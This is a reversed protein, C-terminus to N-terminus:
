FKRTAGIRLVRPGPGDFSPLDLQGNALIPTVGGNYGNAQITYPFSHINTLNTVSVILQTRPALPIGASADIEVFAPQYYQNNNGYYNADFRLFDSRTDRWGIGANGVSYPISVNLADGQVGTWNHGSIIGLNTSLPMGPQNYFGPPLDYPAARMLAASASWFFGRQPNHALSLEVGEYRAHGLNENEATYLPLGNDAGTLTTATFFQNIINTTYIDFSTVIGANRLRYDLGGDYGFATEPRLNANTLYQEYYTPSTVSNASPSTSTGVMTTLVPPAISAGASFRASLDSQPRWTIGLRPADYSSWHDAFTVNGDTSVHADYRNLYLSAVAQVKPALAFSARALASEIVQFNGAYQNPYVFDPLSAQGEAFQFLPAYQTKDVALTYLSSGIPLDAQLTLGGLRTGYTYTYAPDTTTVSVPTGNYLTYTPASPDGTAVAGYLTANVPITAVSNMGVFPIGNAYTQSQNFQISKASLTVPGIQGVADLTFASTYGSGSLYDLGNNYSSAVNLGGPRLSGAYGAPPTFTIQALDELGLQQRTQDGFYGAQIYLAPSVDYRLKLVQGRDSYGSFDPTCCLLGQYNLTPGGYPIYFKPNSNPTSYCGQPACPVFPQGNVTDSSYTSLAFYDRAGSNPGPSEQQQYGLALSLKSGIHEVYKLKLISGGYGDTELEAFGGPKAARPDITVFNVTGGIANNITPTTAGPGKVVDVRQLLNSDIFGISFGEDSVSGYMPHGDFLTGTEYPFGGRVIVFEANDVATSGNGEWSLSRSVSVGPISELEQRLTPLDREELTQTSITQISAPTTNFGGGGASVSVRAIEKLGSENPRKMSVTVVTEGELVAVTSNTAAEYDKAKVVLKYLGAPLDSLHFTGDSQSVTSRVVPGDVTVSAGGIPGKSGSVTGRIQGLTTTM